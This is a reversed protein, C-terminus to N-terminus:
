MCTTVERQNNFAKLFRYDILKKTIGINTATMHTM